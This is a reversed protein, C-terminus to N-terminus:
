IRSFVTTNGFAGPSRIKKDPIPLEHSGYDRVPEASPKGGGDPPDKMAADNGKLPNWSSLHHVLSDVSSPDDTHNMLKPM